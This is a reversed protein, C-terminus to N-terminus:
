SLKHKLFALGDQALGDQSPALTRWIAAARAISEVKDTFSEIVVPGDYGIENLAAAVDDWLVNGSGPTGRDNECSHVHKLHTGATRIADGPSKEEINMHFTDLMIKCSPHDVREVVEVAQEALNMFSTEFRNLPELCLVVGQADAYAALKRLQDVLLDIERQREEPTTRWTRGVAAYIPGVLNTGGLASTADVADRIYQAGNDRIPLEPHILDRDPGMAVCTSVALGNDRLIQAAEDTDILSIDELPLEILDFGMEAVKPAL